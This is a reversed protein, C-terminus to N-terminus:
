KPLKSENNKNAYYFFSYLASLYGLTLMVVLLLTIIKKLTDENIGIIDASNKLSNGKIIETSKGKNNYM